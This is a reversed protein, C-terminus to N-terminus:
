SLGLARMSLAILPSIIKEFTNTLMLIILIYIGYGETQQWQIALNYPLIGHVIKFGDLPQVPILNFFGLMLNYFVTLQLFSIFISPFNLFHLLGTICIALLFNSFPGALSILATDRRPNKLNISNFPVPKGWGFGVILMLVTGLPDLHARPDLTLRGLYRATPDGLKDAVFAHAFEHVSISVVLALAVLVFVLPSTFLLDLMLFNYCAIGAILRM